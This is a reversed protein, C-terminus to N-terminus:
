EIPSAGSRLFGNIFCRGSGRVVSTLTPQVACKIAVLEAPNRCAGAHANGHTRGALAARKHCGIVSKEGCLRHSRGRIPTARTATKGKVVVFIPAAGLHSNTLSWQGHNEYRQSSHLARCQTQRPKQPRRRRGDCSSGSLETGIIIESTRRSPVNLLSPSTRVRGIGALVTM